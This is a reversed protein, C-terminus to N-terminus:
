PVCDPEVDERCRAIYQEIVARQDEPIPIAHMAPQMSVLTCVYTARFCPTGDEEKRGTLGFTLSSRGMREVTVTVALLDDPVLPALMDMDVHVFPTGIEQEVHMRYWHRGWVERFWAEVAAMAFEFFRGTYVIRAADSDSWAMRRLYVLPPGPLVDALDTPKSM